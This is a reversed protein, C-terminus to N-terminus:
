PPIAGRMILKIMIDLDTTLKVVAKGRFGVPYSPIHAESDIQVSQHPNGAGALFRVGSM